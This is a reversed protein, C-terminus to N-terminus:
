DGVDAVDSPRVDRGMRRLARVYVAVTGIMMQVEGTRHRLVSLASVGSARALHRPRVGERVLTAELRTTVPQKPKRQAEHLRIPNVPESEGLDYFDSATVPKRSLRRAARVLRAFPEVGPEIQGSRYKQLTQRAVNAAIAWRLPGIGLAARMQDLRTDYNRVTM